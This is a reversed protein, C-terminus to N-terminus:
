MQNPLTDDHLYTIYNPILCILCCFGRLLEWSSIKPMKDKIQMFINEITTYKEDGKRAFRTLQAKTALTIINYYKMLNEVGHLFFFWAMEYSSLIKLQIKFVFHAKV